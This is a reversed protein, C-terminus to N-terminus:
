RQLIWEYRLSTQDINSEQVFCMQVCGSSTAAREINVFRVYGSYFFVVFAMLYKVILLQMYLEVVCNTKMTAIRRKSRYVDAVSHFRVNNEINRTHPHKRVFVSQPRPYKLMLYKAFRRAHRSVRCINLISQVLSKIACPQVKYTTKTPVPTLLQITSSVYYYRDLQIYQFNIVGILCYNPTIENRFVVTM